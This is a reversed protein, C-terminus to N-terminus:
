LALRVTPDADAYNISIKLQHVSSAAMCACRYEGGLRVAIIVERLSNNKVFVYFLCGCYFYGSLTLGLLSFVVCMLRALTRTGFLGPYPNPPVQMESSKPMACCCKCLWPFLYVLFGKMQYRYLYPQFPLLLYEM